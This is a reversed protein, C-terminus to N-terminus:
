GGEVLLDQDTFDPAVDSAGRVFYQHLKHNDFTAQARETDTMPAGGGAGRPNELIARAHQYGHTQALEHLGLRVGNQDRSIM